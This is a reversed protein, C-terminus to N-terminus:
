AIKHQDDGGFPLSPPQYKWEIGRQLTDWKVPPREYVERRDEESELEVAEAANLVTNMQTNVCPNTEPTCAHM